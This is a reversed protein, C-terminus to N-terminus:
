SGAQISLSQFGCTADLPGFPIVETTMTPVFMAVGIVCKSVTEMYYLSTHIKIM